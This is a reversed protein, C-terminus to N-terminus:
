RYGQQLHPKMCFAPLQMYNAFLVEVSKIKNVPTHLLSAILGKLAKNNRQLFTKFLFDNTMPINVPGTANSLLDNTTLAESLLPNTKAHESSALTSHNKSQMSTNKEYSTNSFLKIPSM